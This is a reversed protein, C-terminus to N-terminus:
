GFISWLSIGIGIVGILVTGVLYRRTETATQKDRVDKELLLIKLQDPINKEMTDLKQSLLDNGAEIKAELNSLKLDTQKELNDLDKQTLYSSNSMIPEDEKKTNLMSNNQKAVKLSPHFEVQIINSEKPM